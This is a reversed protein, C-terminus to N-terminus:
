EEVSDLFSGAEGGCVDEGATGEGLCVIARDRIDIVWSSVLIAGCVPEGRDALGEFFTPDQQGLVLCAAFQECLDAVLLSFLPTTRHM